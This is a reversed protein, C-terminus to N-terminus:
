LGEILPIVYVKDVIRYVLKDGVKKASEWAGIATDPRTQYSGDPQVSLVTDSDKPWRVAVTGAENGPLLDGREWVLIPATAFAIM